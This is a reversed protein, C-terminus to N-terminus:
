DVFGESLPLWDMAQRLQPDWFEWDHGGSGEYYTFDLDQALM